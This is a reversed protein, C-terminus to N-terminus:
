LFPHYLRDLVAEIQQLKAVLRLVVFFCERETLFVPYTGHDRVSPHVPRHVFRFVPLLDEGRQGVIVFVFGREKPIVDGVFRVGVLERHKGVNHRRQFPKIRRM